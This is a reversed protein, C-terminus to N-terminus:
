LMRLFGRASGCMMPILEPADRPAAIAMRAPPTENDPPIDTTIAAIVPAAVADIIIIAADAFNRLAAVSRTNPTMSLKM